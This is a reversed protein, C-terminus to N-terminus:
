MFATFIGSVVPLISFSTATAIARRGLGLLAGLAHVDVLTLVLRSPKYAGAVSVAKLLLYM